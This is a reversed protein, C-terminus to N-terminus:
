ARGPRSRRGRRARAATNTTISHVPERADEVRLRVRLGDADVRGELVRVEVEDGVGLDLAQLGVCGAARDRGHDRRHGVARLRPEGAVHDDDRATRQVRRQQQQSGGVICVRVTEGVARVLYPPVVHAVVVHGHQGQGFLGVRRLELLREGEVVPVELALVGVERPTPDLHEALGVALLQFPLGRVKDRPGGLEHGCRDISM